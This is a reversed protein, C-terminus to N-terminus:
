GAGLRWPEHGTRARYLATLALALLAGGFALSMDKQADWEDGQTGLFATGLEPDVIRAAWSEIIEYGSSLGVAVLWIRLYAALLARLFGNRRLPRAIQLDHAM